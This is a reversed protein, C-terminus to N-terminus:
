NKSSTAPRWRSGEKLEVKAVPVNKDLLGIAVAAPLTRRQSEIKAYMGRDADTIPQDLKALGVLEADKDVVIERCAM